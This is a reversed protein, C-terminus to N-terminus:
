AELYIIHRPADGVILAAAHDADSLAASNDDRYLVARGADQLDLLAQDLARRPVDTLEERVASLRVRQKRRGNALKLCTAEVRGALPSTARAGHPAGNGLLGGAEAIPAPSELDLGLPVDGSPVALLSALTFEHRQLYPLLRHLLGQLVEAGVKSNSHLLQVDHTRAAWSWAKDTLVLHVPRGGGKGRGDASLYGKTLLEAREKVTLEPRAKSQMPERVDATQGAIMKWLFLAQKPTIDQSM